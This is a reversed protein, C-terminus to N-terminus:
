LITLATQELELETFTFPSITFIFNHLTEFIFFCSLSVSLIHSSKSRSIVQADTDVCVIQKVKHYFAPILISGYWSGFIVIKSDKNLFDLKNGAEVLKLKTNFQNPSLSDLLDDNERIEGMINILIEDLSYTLEYTTTDYHLKNVGIGHSVGRIKKIFSANSKDSPLDDGTSNLIVVNEHCM